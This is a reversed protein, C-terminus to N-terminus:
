FKFNNVVVAPFFLRPETMSPLKTWSNSLINFSDMKGFDEMAGGVVVLTNGSSLASGASRVTQMVVVVKCQGTKYDYEIIKNSYKSTDHQGGILLMCTDDRRVTAMHCLPFPLPRMENCKNTTIDFIEVDTETGSGGVILVKDPFLEIGHFARKKNMRCLLKTSFPPVLLIEYITDLVNGTTGGGIIFLRNHYVVCKHGVMEIPLNISFKKWAPPNISLDLVEISDTIEHYDVSTAGGCVLLQNEFLVAAHGFRAIKLNPLPTWIQTLLNFREVSAKVTNAAQGGIVVIDSNNIFISSTDYGEAM